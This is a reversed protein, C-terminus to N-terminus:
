DERKETSQYYSKESGHYILETGPILNALYKSFVIGARMRGIKRKNLQCFSKYNILHTWYDYIKRGYISLKGYKTEKMPVILNMWQRLTYASHFTTVIPINCKEYFEEINTKTRAPNIPDLHIGYLGQEYQVHILDPNIEKSLHILVDSNKKNYPSLGSFDGDGQKNCVVLVEIRKKRLSTVLKETYRGVGGHMPPYETSVM